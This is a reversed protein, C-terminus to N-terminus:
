VEVPVVKLVKSEFKEKMGRKPVVARFSGTTGSREVNGLQPGSRVEGGLGVEGCFGTPHLCLNGFASAVACAVGPDVSPEKM